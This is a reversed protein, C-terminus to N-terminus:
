GPTPSSGPEAGGSRRFTRTADFYGDLVHGGFMEQADYSLLLSGDEEFSIRVLEIRSVFDEATLPQEDGRWFDNYVELAEGAICRRAQEEYSRM